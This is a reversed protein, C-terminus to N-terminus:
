HINIMDSGFEFASKEFDIKRPRTYHLIYYLTSAYQLTKYISFYIPYLIVIIAYTISIYYIIQNFMQTTTM